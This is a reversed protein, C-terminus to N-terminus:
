FKGHERFRKLLNQKIRHSKVRVNAHSIGVIQAIEEQKIGEMTLTIIIRELEPLEGIIKKLFEIKPSQVEEPRSSTEPVVSRNLKERRSKNDLSRLCKNTAIRFIWTGLKAENRFSGMNQWVTIFTEQLIDKAKEGNNTYGYCIRYVKDRYQKYIDTFDM